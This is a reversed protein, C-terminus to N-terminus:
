MVNSQAFLLSLCFYTQIYTSLSNYCWKAPSTFCALAKNARTLRDFSHGVCVTHFQKSLPFLKPHTTHSFLSSLPSAEDYHPTAPVYQVLHLFKHHVLVLIQMHSLASQCSSMVDCKSTGDKAYHSHRGLAIVEWRLSDCVAKRYLVHRYITM